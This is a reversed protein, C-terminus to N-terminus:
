NISGYEIAFLPEGTGRAIIVLNYGDDRVAVRGRSADTLYGEARAWALLQRPKMDLVDRPASGVRFWNNWTWGSGERWAEVSLVNFTTM